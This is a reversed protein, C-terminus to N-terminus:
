EVHQLKWKDCVADQYQPHRQMLIQAAEWIHEKYAKPAGSESGTRIAVQGHGSTYFTVEVGNPKAIDGPTIPCFGINNISFTM